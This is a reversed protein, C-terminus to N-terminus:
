DWDFIGNYLNEFLKFPTNVIKVIPDQHNKEDTRRKLFGKFSAILKRISEVLDKELEDNSGSGKVTNALEKKLDKIIEVVKKLNAGIEGIITFPSQKGFADVFSKGCTDLDRLAKQMNNIGESLVRLLLSKQEDFKRQYMNSAIIAAYSSLLPISSTCMDAVSQTTSVYANWGSLFEDVKGTFDFKHIIPVAAKLRKWEIVQDLAGFVDLFKGLAYTSKIGIELGANNNGGTISIFNNNISSHM